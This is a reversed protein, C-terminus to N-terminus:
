QKVLKGSIVNGAADTAKLIYLGPPLNKLDLDSEADFLKKQIVVAGNSNMFKIDVPLALNKPIAIHLIDNVPSPFMLVSGKSETDDLISTVVKYYTKVIDSAFNGTTVANAIVKVTVDGASVPNINMTLAGTLTVVANTVEIGSATFGTVAKHFDVSATFENHITDGAATVIDPRVEVPLHSVASVFSSSTYKVRFYLDTGPILTVQSGTGALAGTMNSATSYEVTAPVNGTTSEGAFNVTYTPPAPRASAVLEQIASAFQSATAKM